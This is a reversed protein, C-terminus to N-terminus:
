LDAEVLIYGRNLDCDKTNMSKYLDELSIWLWSSNASWVDLVLISDNLENYAAIPSTHGGDIESHINRNYNILMYKNPYLTISKVLNRFLNIDNKTVSDVHYAQAKLGHVKLLSELQDLTLGVESIIDKSIIKETKQNHFNDETWIFNGYIINEIKSYYSGELFIPRKKKNNAYIANLIVVASAVGCTHIHKQPAYHPSLLFFAKKYNSNEFNYKGQNSDFTNVIVSGSYPSITFNNYGYNIVKLNEVLKKHYYNFFFCIIIIVLFVVVIKYKKNM